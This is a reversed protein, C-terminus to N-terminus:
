PSIQYDFGSESEYLLDLNPNLSFICETLSVSDLNLNLSNQRFGTESTVHRRRHTSVIIFSKLFVDIAVFSSCCVFLM